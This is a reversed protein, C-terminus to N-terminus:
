KQLLHEENKAEGLRPAERQSPLSLLQRYLAGHLEAIREWAFQRAYRHAEHVLKARPEPNSALFTAAALADEPSKCFMVAKDLQSPTHPGRTTIVAVGNQAVATLTARRESAGDPYPLYAISAAALKSAVQQEDLEYDWIIPLTSARAQLAKFYQVHKAPVAGLIRIRFSLEKSKIIEALQIVDELGKKPMVLGFHVIEGLNRPGEGTAVGINSGIPIVSSFRSVRPMWRVVFDREFDSTFILHQPRITFPLLALQRLVHVGSAEHLTVVCPELIALGQPGLRTGFGATPYQIHVLDYAQERLYSRVRPASGLKWSDFGVVGAEVGSARLAKVLCGTYDSVGCRGAPSPGTVLAVKV